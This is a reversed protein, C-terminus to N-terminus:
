TEGFVILKEHYSNIKTTIDVYVIQKISNYNQMTTIELIPLDTKYQVDTLLNEHLHKGRHVIWLSLPICSVIKQNEYCNGYTYDYSRHILLSM